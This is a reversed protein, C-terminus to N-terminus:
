NTWKGRLGSGNLLAHTSYYFSTMLMLWWLAVKNYKQKEKLSYIQITYSFRTRSMENLLLVLSLRVLLQGHLILWLDWESM